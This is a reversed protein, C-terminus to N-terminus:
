IQITINYKEILPQIAIKRSSKDTQKDFDNILEFDEPYYKKVADRAPLRSLISDDILYPIFIRVYESIDCGRKKLFKLGEVKYMVKPDFYVQEIYEEDTRKSQIYYKWSTELIVLGGVMWWIYKDVINEWENYAQGYSKGDGSQILSYAIGSILFIIIVIILGRFFGMKKQPVYSASEPPNYPTDSM